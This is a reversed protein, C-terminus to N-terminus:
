VPKLRMLVLLDQFRRSNRLSDFLPQVKLYLLTRDKDDAAQELLELAKDQEGLATYIQSLPVPPFGSSEKQLRQLITLAAVRNGSMANFTAYMSDSYPMIAHGSPIQSSLQRETEAVIAAERFAKDFYKSSATGSSVSGLKAYVNGSVVHAYMFDKEALTRELQEAAEQYRRAYFLSM